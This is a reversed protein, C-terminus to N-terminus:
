YGPEPDPLEDAEPDSEADDLAASQGAAATPAAGADAGADAGANPRPSLIVVDSPSIDAGKACAATVSAWVALLLLNTSTRIGV